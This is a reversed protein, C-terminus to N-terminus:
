LLKQLQFFIQQEIQCTCEKGFTSIPQRFSSFNLSAQYAFGNLLFVDCHSFLCSLF